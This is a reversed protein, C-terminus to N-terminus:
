KKPFNANAKVELLQKTHRETHASMLLLWQYADLGKIVPHDLHFNRLEDSTSKLYEISRARSEEFHKMLAGPNEFRKAPQLFDPAQFRETRDPILKLVQEELGRAAEKKEPSPPQKLIRETVLQFIVDESVALHEACEAVSWRDPAPKFNWQEDSLGRTAELLAKRTAELHKVARDREEKTLTQAAAVPALALAAALFLTARRM